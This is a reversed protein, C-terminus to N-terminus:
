RQYLPMTGSTRLALKYISSSATIYAVKGQEAFALNAAVEPLVLQGLVKGRPTIIRIGGPGTTWVNGASDVKLGDPGGPRREDPAYKILARANSLAGDAGVDYANVFREPGFNAVYLTKGNPSFALGNPLPLDKIMAELKGNAYRYVANFPLEKAPDKDMGSLGFPPDTFWLAGDPAFVLDNPSNLKKGQYRDLLTSPQLQANLRVIKRGGQQVLLVSGDKDTAMANSGLYSDAPFPDLGGAREILLEVKGSRDVAFVKNDRLDSFWLRGERWMPGETFKFGTAVREITTGPAIVTDLAPDMREIRTTVTDAAAAGVAVASLLLALGTHRLLNM